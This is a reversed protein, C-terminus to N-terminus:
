IDNKNITPTIKMLHINICISVKGVEREYNLVDGDVAADWDDPIQPYGHAKAQGSYCM